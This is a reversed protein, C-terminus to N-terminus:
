FIIIHVGGVPVRNVRILREVGGQFADIMTDQIAPIVVEMVM